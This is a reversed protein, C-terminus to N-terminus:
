EDDLKQLTNLRNVQRNELNTSTHHSTKKTQIHGGIQETPRYFHQSQNAPQCLHQSQDAVQRRPKYLITVKLRGGLNTPNNTSTVM